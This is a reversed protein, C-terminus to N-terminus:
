IFVCVRRYVMGLVLLVPHLVRQLLADLLHVVQIYLRLLLGARRLHGNFQELGIRTVYPAVRLVYVLGYRLRVALWNVRRRVLVLLPIVLLIVRVRLILGVLILRILGLGPVRRGLAVAGALLLVARTSVVGALRAVAVGQRKLQMLHLLELMM